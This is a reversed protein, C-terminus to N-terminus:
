DAREFDDGDEEEELESELNTQWEPCKFEVIWEIIAEIAGPNDCLFSEIPSGFRFQNGPYGIAKAFKEFNEVGPEGEWRNIKKQNCWEEFLDSFDKEEIEEPEQTEDPM